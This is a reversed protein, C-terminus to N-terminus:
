GDVEKDDTRRLLALLTEPIEQLHDAAEPGELAMRFGAALIFGLWLWGIQEADIDPRATGAEQM